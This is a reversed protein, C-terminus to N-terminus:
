KAEQIATGMAVATEYDENLKEAWKIAAKKRSRSGMMKNREIWIVDWSKSYPDDGPQVRFRGVIIGKSPTPNAYLAWDM